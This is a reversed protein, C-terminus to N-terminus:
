TGTQNLQVLGNSEELDSVTVPSALYTTGANTLLNFTSAAAGGGGVTVVAGYDVAVTGSSDAVTIASPDATGTFEVTGAGTLSGITTPAEVDALGLHDVNVTGLTSAADVVLQAGLLSGGDIQVAGVDAADAIIATGESSINLNDFTVTHSAGALQAITAVCYPLVNLVNGGSGTGDGFDVTATTQSDDGDGAVNVVDGGAGTIVQAGTVTDGEFEAGLNVTDDTGAGTNVILHIAASLTTANVTAGGADNPRVDLTTVGAGYIVQGDTLTGADYVDVTGVGDAYPQVEIDTDGVGADIELTSNSGSNFRIGGAPAAGAAVQDQCRVGSGSAQIVDTGTPDTFLHAPASFDGDLYVKVEGSSGSVEKLTVLSTGAPVYYTYTSLLRRLELAEVVPSAAEAVVSSSKRCVRPAQRRRAFLKGFLM